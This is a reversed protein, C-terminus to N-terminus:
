CFVAYSIKVHSSNLRTSKRDLSPSASRVSPQMYSDAQIKAAALEPSEISGQDLGSQRIAQARAEPSMTDLAQPISIQGEQMTAFEPTQDVWLDRQLPTQAHQVDLSEGVKVPIG